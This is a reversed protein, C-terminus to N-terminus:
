ILASADGPELEVKRGFLDAARAYSRISGVVDGGRAFIRGAELFLEADAPTGKGDKLLEAVQGAAATENPFVVFGSARDFVLPSGFEIRPLRALRQLERKGSTKSIAACSVVTLGLIVYQRWM